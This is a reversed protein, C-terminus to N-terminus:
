RKDKQLLEINEKMALELDFNDCAFYSKVARQKPGPYISVLCYEGREFFKYHQVKEPKFRRM